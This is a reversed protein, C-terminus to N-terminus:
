LVCVARECPVREYAAGMNVPSVNVHVCVARECTVMQPFSKRPSQLHLPLGLLVDLCSGEILVGDICVELLMHLLYSAFCAPDAWTLTLHLEPYHSNILKSQLGPSGQM